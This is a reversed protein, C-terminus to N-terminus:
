ITVVPPLELEELELLLELEDLELLLLEELELLLELLELEPPNVIDGSLLVLRNNHAAPLALPEVTLRL